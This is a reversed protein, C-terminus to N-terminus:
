RIEINSPSHKLLKQQFVNEPLAPKFSEFVKGHLYYHLSSMKQPYKMLEAQLFAPLLASEGNCQQVSWQLIVDLCWSPFQLFYSFKDKAILYMEKVRQKSDFYIFFPLDLLPLRCTLRCYSIALSDPLFDIWVCKEWANKYNCFIISYLWCSLVHTFIHLNKLRIRM